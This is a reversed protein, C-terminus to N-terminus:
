SLTVTLPETVLFPTFNTRSVVLTKIFMYKKLSKNHASPHATKNTCSMILILVKLICQVFQM